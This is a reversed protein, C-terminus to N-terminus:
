NKVDLGRSLNNHLSQLFINENLRILNFGFTEKKVALQIDKTVIEMRSDLNSPKM